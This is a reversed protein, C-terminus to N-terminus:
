PRERYQKDFIAELVLWKGRLGDIVRKCWDCYEQCRQLSWDPPPTKIVDRLNSIKDALKVARAQTSLYPAHAVQADKRDQKPLSKDDTVELVIKTVREGFAATLEEPTTETDEITDHLIAACLIEVDTVGCESALIDALAVPHNIYPTAGADKRRQDKHKHAAFAVAKILVEIDPKPM